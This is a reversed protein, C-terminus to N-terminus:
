GVVYGGVDLVVEVVDTLEIRDIQLWENGGEHVLINGNIALLQLLRHNDSLGRADRDGSFMEVRTGRARLLGGSVSNVRCAVHLPGLALRRDSLLWRSHRRLDLRHLHFGHPGGVPLLQHLQQQLIILLSDPVAHM